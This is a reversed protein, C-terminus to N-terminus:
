GTGHQGHNRGTEIAARGADLRPPDVPGSQGGALCPATHTEIELGPRTCWRSRGDEPADHERRIRQSVVQGRAGVQVRQDGPPRLPAQQDGNVVVGAGKGGGRPVTASSCRDAREGRRNGGGRGCWEGGSRRGIWSREGPCWVRGIVVPSDPQLSQRQAVARGGVLQDPMRDGGEVRPPDEQRVRRNGALFFPDAAEGCDKACQRRPRREREVILGIGIGPGEADRHPAHGVVCLGEHFDGIIGGIGDAQGGQEIRRARSGDFVKASVEAQRRRDLRATAVKNEVQEGITDRCDADSCRANLKGGDRRIRGLRHQRGHLRSEVLKRGLESTEIM